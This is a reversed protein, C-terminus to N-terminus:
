CRTVVRSVPQSLSGGSYTYRFSAGDRVMQATMQNNCTNPPANDALWAEMQPRTVSRDVVQYHLEIELGNQTVSEMVTADNIPMPLQPRLRTVYYSVRDMVPGDSPFEGPSPNSATSVPATEADGMMPEGPESCAALLLGGILFAPIFIRM